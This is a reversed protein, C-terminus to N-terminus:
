NSYYYAGGTIISAIEHISMDPTLEHDGTQIVENLGWSDLLDRFETASEIYGDDELRNSIDESSEGDNITFIGDVSEETTVEEETTDEEESSEEDDDDQAASELDRITAQLSEIENERAEDREQLSAVNANLNNRTSELAEIEENLGAQEEELSAIIEAEGSDFISQVTVGEVPIHGSLVAFIGTLVGASLFGVGMSRLTNKKM